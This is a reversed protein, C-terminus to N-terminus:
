LLDIIKNKGRAGRVIQVRSKATNFKKAILEILKKNAEGEVPPATLKAKISGDSLEIIENKSSRPIVRVNLRM